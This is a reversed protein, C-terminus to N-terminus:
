DACVKNRGAAKAKYLREDAIKILEEEYTGDEPYGSVGISITIGVEKRRLLLPTSAIKARIEEAHKQAQRRDSGFLLVAMEEGGYRAIMDGERLMANITRALHKLVLDGATHGYRDNYDKFHDIDIMLLSLASKKRAVRKIEDKFREMFYRRVFLGTLGDRIALEQVRSYLLGNEIAVAGLDSIIDMLRLDDQTYLFEKPSDMRIIGLVKNEIVLPTAIVSKFIGSAEEATSAPFRFDRATDEVILSKRNRLVWRDFVDGKKTKVAPANKSASLMLEQKEKDVMFLLVRGEKGLTKTVREIILKNIEEISLTTSLSEAVDKLTSYRTLRDEFSKINDRKGQINTSLMNIGEEMKELRLNYSRNLLDNFRYFGYGIACSILPALLFVSCDNFHYRLIIWGTMFFVMIAMITGGLMGASFWAFLVTVNLSSILSARINQHQLDEATLLPFKLFLYPVSIFLILSAIGLLLKDRSHAM